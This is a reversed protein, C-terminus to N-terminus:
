PAGCALWEGLQQRQLQSPRPLAPPMLTNTASPGAAAHKDIDTAWRRVDALTDYNHDVPAGGRAAGQREVSHCTLCYNGIFGTGFSEATLTSGPPCTAGTAVATGHDHEEEDGPTTTSGEGCAALGLVLASLLSCLSPRSLRFM